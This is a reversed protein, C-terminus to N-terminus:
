KTVFHAVLSPGRNTLPDPIAKFTCSAKTPPCSATQVTWHDFRANTSAAAKLAVFNGAFLQTGCRTSPCDIRLGGASGTVTGPGDVDISIRLRYLIPGAGLSTCTGVCKFTASVGHDRTLRQKCAPGIGVCVENWHDFAWNADKPTARLRAWSGYAYLCYTCSDHDVLSVTGGRSPTITLVVPSFDARVGSVTSLDVVCTPNSGSCPTGYNSFAKSWGVFEGGPGPQATLTVTPTGVPFTYTCYTTCAEVDGPPDLALSALAGSVAVYLRPQAHSRSGAAPVLALAAALLIFPSLRRTRM